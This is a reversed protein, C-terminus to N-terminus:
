RFESAEFQVAPAPDVTVPIGSPTITAESRSPTQVLANPFLAPSAPASTGNLLVAGNSLLIAASDDAMLSEPLIAIMGVCVLNRWKHLRIGAGDRVVQHQSSLKCNLPGSNGQMTVRPHPLIGPNRFTQHVVSLAPSTSTGM